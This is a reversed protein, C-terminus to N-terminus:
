SHEVEEFFVGDLSQFGFAFLQQFFGHVYL